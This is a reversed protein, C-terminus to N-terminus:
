FVLSLIPLVMVQFNQVLMTENFVGFHNSGLWRLEDPIFAILTKFFDSYIAAFISKNISSKEQL